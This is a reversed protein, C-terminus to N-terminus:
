LELRATLRLGHREQLTPEAVRASQLQHRRPRQRHRAHASRTREPDREDGLVVVRM